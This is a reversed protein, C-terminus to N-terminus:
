ADILGERIAYRVLGAIDNIGLTQMLRLRHTEVTKVSVDLRRAIQKTGHGQAILLLVERQRPTLAPAEPQALSREILHKSVGPSLYTQGRRLAEIAVKLEVPAANKLLYGSAGAKLAALVYEKSDYMSLVLVKTGPYTDTVLKTAELGNLGPMAIDMIVVDPHHTQVLGAALRGDDGEAVVEVDGIQELLSRVGARVVSHDDLIVIRMPKTSM